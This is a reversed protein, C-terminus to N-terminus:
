TFVNIPGDQTRVGEDDAIKFFRAIVTKNHDIQSRIEMENGSGLRQQGWLRVPIPFKQPRAIM